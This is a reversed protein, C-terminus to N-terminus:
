QTIQILNRPRGGSRLVLEYTDPVLPRQEIVLYQIGGCASLLRQGSAFEVGDHTITVTRRSTRLTGPPRPLRQCTWVRGPRCAIVVEPRPPTELGALPAPGFQRVRQNGSDAVVFLSNGTAVVALPGDLQTETAWQGDGNFGGVPASNVISGAFQDIVIGTSPNYGRILNNGTDAFLLLGDLNVTLGTPENVQVETGPFPLQDDDLTGNYGSTGTGILPTVAGTTPNVGIIMDPSRTAAYITGDVSQTVSVVDGAASFPALTTITGGSSVRRVGAAGDAILLAGHTDVAIGNAAALQAGTAPGGDGCPATSCAAGTGAVTTITGSPDIRRVRRLESDAVYVSGDLGVALGSPQGLLASAAAGGDGCASTAASCKTGSTGAVTTVAGQGVLRITADTVGVYFGQGPVNTNWRPPPTLVIALPEGTGVAEFLTSTATPCVGRFSASCPSPLVPAESAKPLLKGICSPPTGAPETGDPCSAVDAFSVGTLDTMAFPVLMSIEPAGLALPWSWLGSSNPGPTCWDNSLSGCYLWARDFSANTLTAQSLVVGPLYTGIFTAGNLTAGTFNCAVCVSNDFHAGALPVGTFDFGGSLSADGALVAGTFDAGGLDTADDFADGDGYIHADAFVASNARVGSFDTGVARAGTFQASTIDAGSFGAGNLNADSFDARQLNTNPGSFNAAPLSGTGSLDAGLFSADAASVNTLTAGALRALDFNLGTLTAGDLKTGTLDLAEGLMQTDTDSVLTIGTLDAGALAARDTM